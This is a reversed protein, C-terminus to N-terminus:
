IGFLVGAPASECCRPHSELVSQPCQAHESWDRQCANRDDCNHGSNDHDTLLGQDGDESDSTPMEETLKEQGAEQGSALHGGDWETLDSQKEMMISTHPAQACTEASGGPKAAPQNVSHSVASPFPCPTDSLSQCSARWSWVSNAVAKGGSGQLTLM